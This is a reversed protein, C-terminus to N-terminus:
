VNYADEYKEPVHGKYIAAWFDHGQVTKDWILRRGLLYGGDKEEFWDDVVQIEDVVKNLECAADNPKLITSVYTLLAEYVEEEGMVQGKFEELFVREFRKYKQHEYAADIKSASSYLEVRKGNKKQILKFM